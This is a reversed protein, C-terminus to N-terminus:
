GPPATESLGAPEETSAAAAAIALFFGLAAGAFANWSAEGSDALWFGSLFLWVSIGMVTWAAADRPLRDALGAASVALILIGCVIPNWKADGSGYDLVFPSLMLWVGLLIILGEAALYERRGDIRGEAPPAYRREEAVTSEDERSEEPRHAMSKRRPRNGIVGVIARCGRAIGDICGGILPDDALM